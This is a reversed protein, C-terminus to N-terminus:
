MILSISQPVLWSKPANRRCVKSRFAKMDPDFGDVDGLSDYHIGTNGCDLKTLIHM